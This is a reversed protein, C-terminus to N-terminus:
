RRRAAAGLLAASAGLAVWAPWDGLRGYLTRGVRLRVREVIASREYLRTRRVIQGSPAVFASVGTNAARVVAVRHEIARFSYMALHQEPGSTRGFWADNTINVILRAGNRVFERVLDPFVGEYCIVVGFPAPPGPFVAAHTGPELDAIFEAWDRVFGIVGALPVYEGFPVLQIKDYRGAIGAPTVLFASNRLRPPRAGDDVDLSGVVLPARAAQALAALDALLARDRALPTPTATEPWVILDPRAAAARRTLATTIALTERAHNPDFKLPQEISPQVIAVSVEPPTLPEDLRLLGFHLTAAVLGGVAALGAVAPRWPLVLGGALAANVAVLLFSVAHVGGVEAIQIVPLRQYQSYGLTGWPFGGMLHGRIWEGAVWLFPAASLGWVASRRAALWAVGGAVLALYLGCYAALLLTPGYTLPWPIASYTRFTFNLWRLLVLFHVTGFLWGWLAATRWPRGLVVVLLPVLAIWAVGDWDTRPFALGLAFASAVVLAARALTERPTV